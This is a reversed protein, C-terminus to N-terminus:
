KIEKGKLIRHKEKRYVGDGGIYNDTKFIVNDYVLPTNGYVEKVKKILEDVDEIFTGVLLNLGVKKTTRRLWDPEKSKLEKKVKDLNIKNSPESKKPADDNGM